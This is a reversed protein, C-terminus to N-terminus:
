VQRVRQLGLVLVDDVCQVAVGFRCRRGCARRGRVSAFSDVGKRWSPPRLALMPPIADRDQDRTDGLIRAFEQLTPARWARPRNKCLLQLLPRSRCANRAGFAGTRVVANRGAVHTGEERSRRCPQPVTLPVETTEIGAVRAMSRIADLTRYAYRPFM